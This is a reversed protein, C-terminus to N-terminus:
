HIDVRKSMVAADEVPDNYYDKRIRVEEFGHKEYLQIAAFNSKRVELFISNLNMERSNRTITDMLKDGIGCRQMARDVAIQLIEGDDGVQRFVAFGLVYPNHPRPTAEKRCAALIVSDGKALEDLLMNYTWAQSILEQGIKLIGTLHEVAANVVEIM